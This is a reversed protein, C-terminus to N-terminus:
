ATMALHAACQSRLGYGVVHTPASKKLTRERGRSRAGHSGGKAKACANPGHVTPRSETSGQDEIPLITNPSALVSAGGPEHPAFVELIRVHIPAMFWIPVGRGAREGCPPSLTAAPRSLPLEHLAEMRKRARM